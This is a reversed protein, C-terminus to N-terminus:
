FAVSKKWDKQFTNVINKISNWYIFIGIERNNELSNKTFNFSGIFAREKDVIIAKAHLSPHKMERIEPCWKHSISEEKRMNETKQDLLIHIMKGQSCIKQLEWIIGTDTLEPMYIDIEHISSHVFQLIRERANTPWVLIRSDHWNWAKDLLDREFLDKLDQMIITNEWFVFFDRNSSFTSRTWNGTSIIWMDDIIMYKAHMFTFYSSDTEYFSINNKRFFQSAERNTSVANYPNKELIIKVDVGRNKARLLAEMLSPLTFMYLAIRIEKRAWNIYEIFWEEKEPSVRIHVEKEFIQKNEISLRESSIQAHHERYEAIDFSKWLFLGIIGFLIISIGFRIKSFMDKNITYLYKMM